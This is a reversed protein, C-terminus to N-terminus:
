KCCMLPYICFFIQCLVRIVIIIITIIIIFSFWLFVLRPSVAMNEAGAKSWEAEREMMEAVASANSELVSIGLFVRRPPQKSLFPLFDSM